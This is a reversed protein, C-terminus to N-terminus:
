EPLKQSSRSGGNEPKLQKVAVLLDYIGLNPSYSKEAPLCPAPGPSAQIAMSREAISQREPHLCLYTGGFDLAYCCCCSNEM